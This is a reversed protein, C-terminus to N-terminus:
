RDKQDYPKVDQVSEENEGEVGGGGVGGMLMAIGLQQQQQQHQHHLHHPFLVAEAAVAPGATEVSLQADNNLVSIWQDYGINTPALDTSYENGVVAMQQHIQQQQQQQQQKAVRFAMVQQYVSSLEASEKAILLELNKIIGVCGYVPDNARADSQFIISRMAECKLTPELDRIIKLINSVGFLRHANMFQRQRDAPFFPALPCDPNCKRRQYKCAACAQNTTTTSSTTSSTTISSSSSSPRHPHHHPHPHTLM